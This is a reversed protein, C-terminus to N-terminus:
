DRSGLTESKAFFEDQLQKAITDEKIARVLEAVRETILRCAKEGAEASSNEVVGSFHTPHDAYWWMATHIGMERSIHNIRGYNKLGEEEICDMHVLDPRELMVISTEHNGGHGGVKDCNYITRIEMLEKPNLLASVGYIVYDKKEYIATQIFYDIFRINGGHSNLIIIKKFGNRAIEKCVNKLLAYALEPEISITGPCHMAEAIQGFYYYPFIVAPEIKVVESVVKRGVLMDTNLPLHTGHKEIVGFPIICTGKTTKRAKEFERSTLEEWYM